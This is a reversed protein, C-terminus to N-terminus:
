RKDSDTQDHDIDNNKESELDVVIFVDHRRLFVIIFGTKGLDLQGEVQGIFFGASLNRYVAPLIFIKNLFHFYVTTCLKPLLHCLIRDKHVQKPRIPNNLM